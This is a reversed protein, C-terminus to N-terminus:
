RVELSKNAFANSDVLVKEKLGENAREQDRANKKLLAIKKNEEQIGRFQTKRADERAKWKQEVMGYHQFMVKIEETDKKKVEEKGRDKFYMQMEADGKLKM